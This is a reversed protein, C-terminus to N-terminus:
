DGALCKAVFLALARARHSSAHKRAPDMEGFTESAGDPLFMPDYGFGREGRPPWVLRGFVRGEFVESAGSPWALCLVATFNARPGPEGWGGRAQVEDAVRRMARAFDKDPGAWRASIVGPAGDLAEVELGSDDSLAPLLEPRAAVSDWLDEALQIREAPSLKLLEAIVTNKM